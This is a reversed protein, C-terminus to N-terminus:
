SATTADNPSPVTGAEALQQPTWQEELLSRFAALRDSSADLYAGVLAAGHAYNSVYKGYEPHTIFRALGQAEVDTMVRWRQLYVAVDDPTAGQEFHLLAANGSTWELAHMAQQVQVIHTADTTIGLPVLVQQHLWDAYEGDPIITGLAQMAIGEATVAAPSLLLAIAAEGWGREHLLRHEKLAGEAHHGPYGEHALLDPLRHAYLPRDINLEVLSRGDGLFRNYGGWPKDRVLEVAFGNDNPLEVFAHTRDRFEANLREILGLLADPDIRLGDLWAAHREALPGSGPLADEMAAHAERFTDETTWVPTIGYIATVEDTFSLPPHTTRQAVTRLAHAQAALYARRGPDSVASIGHDLADLAAPIEATTLAAADTRLSEPGTYADVLDPYDQGLRLGLILYLRSLDDLPRTTDHRM